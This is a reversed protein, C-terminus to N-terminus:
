GVRYVSEWKIELGSVVPADVMGKKDKPVNAEFAKIAEQIAGRNPMKTVLEDPLENVDTVTYVLKFRQKTNQTLAASPVIQTPAIEKRPQKGQAIAANQAQLSRRAKEDEERQKRMDEERLKRDWEGAQRQCHTFGRDLLDLVPGFFTNIRETFCRNITKRGKELANIKPKLAQMHAMAANYSEQTTITLTEIAKITPTIDAVVADMREQNALERTNGIAVTTVEVLSQTQEQVTAM